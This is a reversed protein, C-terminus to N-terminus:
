SKKACKVLINHFTNVNSDYEVVKFQTGFFMFAFYLVIYKVNIFNKLINISLVVM